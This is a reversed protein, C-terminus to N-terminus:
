RHFATETARKPDRQGRHGQREDSRKRDDGDFTASARGAAARLAARCRQAVTRDLVDDHLEEIALATGFSGRGGCKRVAQSDRPEPMLGEIRGGARLSSGGSRPGEGVDGSLGHHKLNINVSSDTM